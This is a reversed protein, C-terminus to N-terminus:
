PATTVPPAAHRRDGFDMSTVIAILRDFLLQDENATGLSYISRKTIREALETALVYIHRDRVFILHGRKAIAPAPEPGAADAPDLAFASGGPLLTFALLAGGSYDPLFRVSEVSTEPFEHRYDRLINDRFFSVLYEQAESTEYEWRAAPPMRFAAITLLASIRDKFVVIEPTDMIAAGDGRLAPVPVSYAGDPPTYRGEAIRGVLPAPNTTAPTTGSEATPENPAAATGVALLSLLALHRLPM